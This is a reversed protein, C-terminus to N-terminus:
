AASKVNPTVRRVWASLAGVRTKRKPAACGCKRCKVQWVTGDARQHMLVEGDDGCNPCKAQCAQATTMALRKLWYRSGGKEYPAKKM